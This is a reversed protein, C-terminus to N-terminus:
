GLNVWAAGDSGRFKQGSSGDSVYILAGESATADPLTAITYTMLGFPGTMVESGDKPLTRNVRFGMQEFRFALETILSTAFSIFGSIPAPFSSKELVPNM